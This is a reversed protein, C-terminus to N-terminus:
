WRKYGYHHIKMKISFTNILTFIFGLHINRRNITSCIVNIKSINVEPDDGFVSKLMTMTTNTRTLRFKKLCYQNAIVFQKMSAKMNNHSVLALCRMDEPAFASDFEPDMELMLKLPASSSAQDEVENDGAYISDENLEGDDDEDDKGDGEVDAVSPLTIGKTKSM